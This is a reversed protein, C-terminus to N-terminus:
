RNWFEFWDSTNNIDNNNSNNNYCYNNNNDELIISPFGTSGFFYQQHGSYFDNTLDHSYLASYMETQLTNPSVSTWSLSNELNSVGGSHHSNDRTPSRSLDQLEPAQVQASVEDTYLPEPPNADTSTADHAVHVRQRKAKSQVRRRLYQRVVEACRQSAKLPIKEFIEVAHLCATDDEPSFDNSQPLLVLIAQLTYFTYYGWRRLEPAREFSRHIHMIMDRAADLCIRRHMAMLPCDAAGSDLDFKANVAGRLLIINGLNFHIRLSSQQRARWDRLFSLSADGSDPIESSNSEISLYSPLSDRWHELQQRLSEREELLLVPREEHIDSLKLITRVIKSFRALHSIFVVQALDTRSEHTAPLQVTPYNMEMDSSRVSMPRGADLSLEVEQIYIMAWTRKAEERDFGLTRHLSEVNLGISYGLRAAIGNLNYALNPKIAHQAYAGLFTAAQALDLNSADLLRGLMSQAEAFYWSAWVCSDDQDDEYLAGLALISYLLCVFQPRNPEGSTAFTLQKDGFLRRLANYRAKLHAQDLIPLFIHITRFFNELHRDAVHVQLRRDGRLAHPPVVYDCFSTLEDLDLTKHATNPSEPPSSDLRRKKSPPDIAADNRHDFTKGLTSAIQFTSTRGYYEFCGTQQNLKVIGRTQPRLAFLQPKSAIAPQSSPITSSTGQQSLRKEIQDLRALVLDLREALAETGGTKQLPAITFDCQLSKKVCQNCPQLGDCKIRKGRCRECAEVAKKRAVGRVTSHAVLDAM